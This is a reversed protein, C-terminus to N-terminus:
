RHLLGVWEPTMLGSDSTSLGIALCKSTLFFVWVISTWLYKMSELELLAQKQFDCFFRPISSFFNAKIEFDM